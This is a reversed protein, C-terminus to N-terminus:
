QEITYIRLFGLLCILLLSFGIIRMFHAKDTTIIKQHVKDGLVHGIAAFPLTYIAWDLQLSTGTMVFAILKISVLIFWLCFLTARLNIAALHKSFVAIILPAGILSTGSIYSGGALLLWDIFKYQNKWPKQTIYSLAYISTIIYVSLNLWVSPLSLLGIVGAIKFPLMFPLATGLYAWNIHAYYHRLNFLVSVLLHIGIIPIIEVPSDVIFLFLPLSLAAGGFGLATRVFGSWIFILFFFVLQILSLSEM